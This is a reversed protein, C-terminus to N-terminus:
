PRPVKPRRARRSLWVAGGFLFSVAFAAASPLWIEVFSVIRARIPNDSDYIVTVREGEVFPTASGGRGHFEIERGEHTTFRVVPAYSTRESDRERDFSKSARIEQVVGQARVGGTYLDAASWLVFLGILGAGAAVVSFMTEGLVPLDVGRSLGWAVAGFMLWIGGFVSVIIAMSWLRDFTAIRFDAPDQPMYLIAVRDGVAFDPAGSGLDKVMRSEGSALRFRVVPAYMDGERWMEVVEGEVPEGHLVLRLSGLGLALGGALILGGIALVLGAIWGWNRDVAM